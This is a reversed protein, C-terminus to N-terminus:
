NKGGEAIDVSVTQQRWVKGVCIKMSGFQILDAQKIQSVNAEIDRKILTEVASDIASSLEYITHRHIATKISFLWDLEAARKM